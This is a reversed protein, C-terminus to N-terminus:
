CIFSTMYLNFGLLGKFYIHGTGRCGTERVWTYKASEVFSPKVRLRSLTNAIRTNKEKQIVDMIDEDFFLYFTDGFLRVDNAKTVLDQNFFLTAFVNNDVILFFDREWSITKTNKNCGTFVELQGKESLYTTPEYNNQDLFTDTSHVLRKILIARDRIFM